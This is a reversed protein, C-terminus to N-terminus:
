SSIGPDPLQGAGATMEKYLYQKDSVVGIRRKLDLTIRNLEQGFLSVKGTSPKIIDLLIKITTTKGAGNPGLFGYLEGPAVRLRLNNLAKFTGYQKTVNKIEIIATKKVRTRGAENQDTWEIARLRL